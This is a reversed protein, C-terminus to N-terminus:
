TNHQIYHCIGISVSYGTHIYLAETRNQCIISLIDLINITYIYIFTYEIYRYRHQSDCFPKPQFPGYLNNLEMGGAMLLSMKWWGLTSWAGDLRAKLVALSPAAVAERPLRPWPRM